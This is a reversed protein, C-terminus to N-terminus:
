PLIFSTHAMQPLLKIIIISYTTQNCKSFVTVSSVPTLSRQAPHPAAAAQQRFQLHATAFSRCTRAVPITWWKGDSGLDAVVCAEKGGLNDPQGQLWHRFSSSSGDSWKWSDRFLGIWVIYGASVLDKIKQNEATNRVSALDTHHERCYSQAETWTMLTEILVFTVNLGRVDMCVSWYRNECDYDGWRGDHM